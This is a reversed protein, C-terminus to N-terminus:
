ERTKITKLASELNVANKRMVSLFDGEGSPANSCIEFTVSVLGRKKLEEVTAGLPEAEWIVITASHEARLEKLEARQKETPAEDPEWHLSRSNLAFRQQFYQYVPHSFLVPRDRAPKLIADLSADVELLNKKLSDFDSKISEARAPALKVLADRIAEAQLVALRPNLWTHSATGVHSHEGGRGHSHTVVNEVKLLHAKFAASTDVLRSDPLSVKDLWKAYGAGNLVVLDAQQFAKIANRDPMWHAPDVDAPAPFVVEVADGGIRQAFYQLPYNVTYVLPKERVPSHASESAGDDRSGCGTLLGAVAVGAAVRNIRIRM